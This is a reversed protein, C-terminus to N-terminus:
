HMGPSTVPTAWMQDRASSGQNGPLFCRSCARAPGKAVVAYAPSSIATMPRLPLPFLVRNLVRAPSIFASCPSILMWLRGREARELFSSARIMPLLVRESFPRSLEIEELTMLRDGYELLRAEVQDSPRPSAIGIIVLMVALFGGVAIILPLM